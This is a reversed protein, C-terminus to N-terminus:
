RENLTNQPSNTSAVYELHCPHSILSHFRSKRFADFTKLGSLTTKEGFSDEDLGKENFGNMTSTRCSSRSLTRLLDVPLYPSSALYANGSGVCGGCVFVLLLVM